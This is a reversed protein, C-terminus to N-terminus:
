AWGLLPSTGCIDLPSEIAPKARSVPPERFDRPADVGIVSFSWSDPFCVELTMESYSAVAPSHDVTVEEFLPVTRDLDLGEGGHLGLRDHPKGLGSTLTM